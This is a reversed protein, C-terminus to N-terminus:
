ISVPFKWSESITSERKDSQCPLYSSFFFFLKKWFYLSQFFSEFTTFDILPHTISANFYSFFFSLSSWHLLITWIILSIQPIELLCNKEYFTKFFFRTENPKSTKECIMVLVGLILYSIAPICVLVASELWSYSCFTCITYFGKIKNRAVCYFICNYWRNSTSTTGGAQLKILFLIRACM